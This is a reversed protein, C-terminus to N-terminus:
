ALNSVKILLPESWGSHGFHPLFFKSRSIDANAKLEFSLEPFIVELLEDPQLPQELLL